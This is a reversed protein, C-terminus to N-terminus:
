KLILLFSFLYRKKSTATDIVVVAAAYIELGPNSIPEHLNFLKCYANGAFAVFLSFALPLFIIASSSFSKLFDLKFKACSPV